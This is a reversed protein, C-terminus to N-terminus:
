KDDISFKHKLIWKTAESETFKSKPLIVSQIHM